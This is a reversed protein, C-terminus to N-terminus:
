KVKFGHKLLNEKAVNISVEKLTMKCIPCKGPKDSIVNWDMFDQFVKGDKNEDISKVDVVGERIISGSQSKESTDKKQTKTEKSPSTSKNGPEAPTMKMGEHGTVMGSKLQSESDILYGGTIAVEDGENIGSIIQYKDDLKMGVVVERPEFMGDSVKIWVVNRKGMFLIADSPVTLGNGFSREFTTQGYMQPRLRGKINSFDSRVKITRTQSNVVPYIFSITGTFVEGPYAQLSLNVKGGIRVMNIENENIESINWLNSLDAVDFMAMGENVYIGEQVKKEIVTGGIPSFYTITMKVEKTSEIENIQGDSLGFIHLKKKASSVLSNQSSNLAILLENQAQVIDPSYVEFLAQNKAINDGTKSVFLKEIRGNFKATIVKRNQDAFDLYSYAVIQKKLEGKQIKVTAVNALVLKNNNLKIMNKMDGQNMNDDTIKKVLDMECIPCQGPKDSIVQPHMPCTWLQKKETQSHQHNEPKNGEKSCSSFVLGFTLITLIIFKFRLMM